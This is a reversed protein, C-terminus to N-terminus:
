ALLITIQASAGESPVHKFGSKAFRHWRGVVLCTIMNARVAAQEESGQGQSAAIRLAQRLAMEVRDIFQNMRVQLREDENVLADGIMVRTMGPNREAFSLLMGTIAQAQVLGNEQQETIQNILGFISSEIFEILGEFMQAKSAFHRYLAAESVELRAALAATTIKEGKPQELMTALMQLIQLKREGTKTNPMHEKDSFLRFAGAILAASAPIPPTETRITSQCRCLHAAKRDMRCLAVRRSAPHQPQP